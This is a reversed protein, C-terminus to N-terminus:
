PHVAARYITRNDGCLPCQLTMGNRDLVVRGHCDHSEAKRDCHLTRMREYLQAELPDMVAPMTCGQSAGSAWPLIEVTTQFETMCAEDDRTYKEAMADTIPEADTPESMANPM